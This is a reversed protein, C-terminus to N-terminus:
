KESNSRHLASNSLCLKEVQIVKERSEALVNQAKQFMKEKKKRIFYVVIPVLHLMRTQVKGGCLEYYSKSYQAKLAHMEQTKEEENLNM